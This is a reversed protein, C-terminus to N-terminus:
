MHQLDYKELKSEIHLMENSTLLDEGNMIKTYDEMNINISYGTMSSVILVNKKNKIYKQFYYKNVLSKNDSFFGTPSDGLSSTSGYLM